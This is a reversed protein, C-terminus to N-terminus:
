SSPAFWSWCSEWCKRIIYRGIRIFIVYCRVIRSWSDNRLSFVNFTLLRLWILIQLICLDSKCADFDEFDAPQSNKEPLGIFPSAMLGSMLFTALLKMKEQEFRQVWFQFWNVKYLKHFLLLKYSLFMCLNGLYFDVVICKFNFRNGTTKWTKQWDGYRSIGHIDM